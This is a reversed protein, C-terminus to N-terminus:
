TNALLNATIVKYFSLPMAQLPQQTQELMKGAIVLSRGTGIYGVIM